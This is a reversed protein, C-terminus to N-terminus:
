LAAGATSHALLVRSLGMRMDRSALASWEMVAKNGSLEHITLHVRNGGPYEKIIKVLGSLLAVDADKDETECITVRVPPAASRASQVLASAPAPRRDEYKQNIRDLLKGM